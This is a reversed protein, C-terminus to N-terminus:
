KRRQQQQASGVIPPTRSSITRATSRRRLAEAVREAEARQAARAASPDMMRRLQEAVEARAMAAKTAGAAHTMGELAINGAGHTTMGLGVHAAAKAMKGMAGAKEPASVARLANLLASATGSTNVTGPVAENLHSAARGITALRGLEAPSFLAKLKPMGIADLKSMFLKGSVPSNGIQDVANGGRAGTAYEYASQIITAKMRQLTRTDGVARLQKVVQIFPRDALTTILGDARRWNEDHKFAGEVNRAILKRVGEPNEYQEAWARHAARAKAYAPGAEGIQDLHFNIADKAEWILKNVEKSASPDFAFSAHQHLQDLESGTLGRRGERTLQDLRARLGRIFAAGENTVAAQHRPNSVVSYVEEPAVRVQGGAQEAEHYLRSVEERGRDAAAALSRAAAEAAEGQAPVGGLNGIDGQLTAHLAGNNSAIQTALRQGEVTDQKAGEWMARQDAPNRTVHALTPQGGIYTIEAERLAQDLPMGESVLRQAQEQVEPPWNIDSELGRRAGRSGLADRLRTVDDEAPAPAATNADPAAQEGAARTAFEQEIAKANNAAYQQLALDQATGGRGKGAMYADVYSAPTMEGGKAGASRVAAALTAQDIPPRGGEIPPAVPNAAPSATPTNETQVQLRGEPTQAGVVEYGKRISPSAAFEAQGDPGKRWGQAIEDPKWGKALLAADAEGATSAAAGAEGSGSAFRDRIAQAVKSNSVAESGKILVPLVKDVTAGIAPALVAGMAMNEGVNEGRSTLGGAAAGQAAMDAYRAVSTALKGARAARAASSAIDIEALPATAAIMGGLERSKYMTSNPDSALGRLKEAMTQSWDRLTAAPKHAGTHDVVWAAADM